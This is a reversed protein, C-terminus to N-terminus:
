NSLPGISSLIRPRQFNPQCPHMHITCCIDLPPISHSSHLNQEISQYIPHKWRYESLVHIRHHSATGACRMCFCAHPNLGLADDQDDGVQLSSAMFARVETVFRDYIGRLAKELWLVMSVLGWVLVSNSLEPTTNQSIPIHPVPTVSIWVTTYVIMDDWSVKDLQSKVQWGM